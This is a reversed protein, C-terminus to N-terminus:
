AVSRLEELLARETTADLGARRERDIGQATEWALTDALTERLQRTTLGAARARAGSRCAFGTWDPESIWLPLSREGMWEEVGHEILWRDPATVLEGV